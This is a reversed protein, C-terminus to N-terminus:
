ILLLHCKFKLYIFEVVSVLTSKPNVLQVKNKDNKSTLRHSIDQKKSSAKGKENRMSDLKFSSSLKSNDM